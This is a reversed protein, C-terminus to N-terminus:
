NVSKTAEVDLVSMAEYVPGRMDLAPTIDSCPMRIFCKECLWWRDHNMVVAVEKACDCCKPLADLLRQLTKVADM